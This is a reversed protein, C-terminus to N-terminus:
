DGGGTRGEHDGDGERHDDIPAPPAPPRRQKGAGGEGGARHGGTCQVGVDRGSLLDPSGGAVIRRERPRVREAECRQGQGGADDESGHQLDHGVVAVFVFGRPMVPPHAGGLSRPHLCLPPHAGEHRRCRGIAGHDTQAEVAADTAPLQM